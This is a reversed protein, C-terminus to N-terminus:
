TTRARITEALRIKMEDECKVACAEREEARASTVAGRMIVLYHEACEKREKDEAMEWAASWAYYATSECMTGDLAAYWARFAEDQNM